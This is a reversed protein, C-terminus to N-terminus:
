LKSSIKEKLQQKELAANVLFEEKIGENGLYRAFILLQVCNTVDTSEDLQIAFGTESMSIESTVQQSIDVPMEEIRRQVTNISLTVSNFKKVSEDGLVCCRMEKVVPLVLDEGTSHAKKQKAIM